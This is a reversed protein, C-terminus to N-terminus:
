IRIVTKNKSTRSHVAQFAVSLETFPYTRGIRPRVGARILSVLQKLDESTPHAVLAKFRHTSSRASRQARWDMVGLIARFLPNLRVGAIRLDEPSPPAATSVLSGGPKLCRKSSKLTAGGAIDLVMDLNQFPGKGAQSAFDRYDVVQSAGNERVWELDSASATALVVAGMKKAIQLAMSGVGGGAGHVLIRSESDAKGFQLSQLATIGNLPAAAWIDIDPLIEDAPLSAIECPSAALFEAFARPASIGTYGMVRTGVGYEKLDISSDSLVREVRGFFEVGFPLPPPASLLIKAKGSLMQVDVPNICAAEVRVLVPREKSLAPINAESLCLGSLDRRFRTILAQRM